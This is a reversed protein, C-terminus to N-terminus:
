PSDCIQGGSVFLICEVGTLNGIETFNGDTMYDLKQTFPNYITQVGGTVLAAVCLLFVILLGLKIITKM